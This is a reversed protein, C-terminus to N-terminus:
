DRRHKNKFQLSNYYLYRKQNEVGGTPIVRKYQDFETKSPKTFVDVYKRKSVCSTFLIFLFVFWM